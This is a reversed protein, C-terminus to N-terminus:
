IFKIKTRTRFKALGLPSCTSKLSWSKNTYLENRLFIGILVVARSACVASACSLHIYTCHWWCDLRAPVLAVRIAYISNACWKFFFVFDTLARLRESHTIRESLNFRNESFHCNQTHTTKFSFFLVWDFVVTMQQGINNKGM